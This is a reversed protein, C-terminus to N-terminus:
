AEILVPEHEVCVRLRLLPSFQGCIGFGTNKEIPLREITLHADAPRDLPHRLLLRVGIEGGPWLTRLDAGPCALLRPGQLAAERELLGDREVACFVREGAHRARRVPRAVADHRVFDLEPM